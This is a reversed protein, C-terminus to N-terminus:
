APSRKWREELFERAPTLRVGFRQATDLRPRSAETAALENLQMLNAAAPQFPTLIKGVIRFVWAPTKKVRLPGGTLHEYIKVVDLYTLAEPGTIDHIGERGPELAAALFRAVDEICIFAHPVTGDGPIMAVRDRDISESIRSFHNRSFSFPRLVTAGEAGRIPITSGMMAFAIDMFSDARLIVASIGSSQILRETARKRRFLAPERATMLASTYVIRSVGAQQAARVLNRYGEGEVREFTDGPRSPIAVNATAIIARAGSCARALSDFRTLDGLIAETGTSEFRARATESRVLARVPLGLERLRTIAASGLQGTAGVVLIPEM